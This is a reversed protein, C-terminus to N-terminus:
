TSVLKTSWLHIIPLSFGVSHLSLFDSSMSTILFGDFLNAKSPSAALLWDLLAAATANELEASLEIEFGLYTKPAPPSRFKQVGEPRVAIIVEADPAMEYLDLHRRLATGVAYCATSVDIPTIGFNALAHAPDGGARVSREEHLESIYPPLHLDYKGFFGKLDSVDHPLDKLLINSFALGIEVEYDSEVGPRGTFESSPPHDLGHYPRPREHVEYSFAEEDLGYHRPPAEQLGPSASTEDAPEGEHRSFLICYLEELQDTDV